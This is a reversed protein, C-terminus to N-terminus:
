PVVTAWATTGGTEFDDTFLAHEVERLFSGRSTALLLLDQGGPSFVLERSSGADILGDDFPAFELGGDPSRLTEPPGIQTVYVVGSRTPHAVVDRLDSGAFGTSMWTQGADPTRYLGSSPWGSALYFANIDGYVPSLAYPNGNTPLGVSSKVWTIGGDTSRLAGSDPTSATDQFSAVMAMDTGDEVIELDTVSEYAEAGEYVKVWSSGTDTSRWVTAEFGAVGFDNGGMLLLAPNNSSFRLAGLESEFNSGQDPGLYTWNGDLERRYLAEPAITSPGDSIAYLRGDDAFRVLNYRTGPCGELEWLQGGDTSTYVGGNNLGQFAVALELQNNPNAAISWVDFLSIGASSIDFTAGGDLSRVVGFSSAGLFVKMTDTPAFRISAVTFAGTGGISLSWTSGGDTTRHVGAGETAVLVDLNNGPNIELDTVALTPWSGNHLPNWSAGGDTSSYLGVAQSGFLQGGGVLVRSGDHAVANMPNNPLGASRNGWSAGGDTSRWVQGGGFAGGFVAWVELSNSPNMAIGRCSIPSTLPPTVNDWSAGEDTSLLVNQNQAGLHDSVGAWLNNPNGPDLALEYTTDNDGIGLPLPTWAAGDDPSTFVGDDTAAFAVGSPSFEIDYVSVGLGPVEIWSDGGDTSRFLTGGSSGEPAIGALVTDTATPSASADHVDGGFPGRSSWGSSAGDESRPARCVEQSPVLMPRLGSEDMVDAAAATAFLCCVGIFLNRPM